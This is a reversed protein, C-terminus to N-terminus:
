PSTTDTDQKSNSNDKIFDNENSQKIENILIPHCNIKFDKKIM